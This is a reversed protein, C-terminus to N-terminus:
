EFLLFFWFQSVMNNKGDHAMEFGLKKLIEHPDVQMDKPVDYHLFQFEGSFLCLVYLLIVFYFRQSLVFLCMVVCM